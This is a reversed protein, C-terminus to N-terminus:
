IKGWGNPTSFYINSCDFCLLTNMCISCPCSLRTEAKKNLRINVIIWDSLRSRVKRLADIESHWKPKFDEKPIRNHYGYKKDPEHQRNVGVSCIKGNM